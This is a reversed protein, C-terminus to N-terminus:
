YSYRQSYLAVTSTTAGGGSDVPHGGVCFSFDVESSATKRQEGYPKHYIGAFALMQNVNLRPGPAKNLTNMCALDVGLLVACAGVVANNNDCYEM